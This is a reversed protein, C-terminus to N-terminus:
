AACSIGWTGVPGCSAGRVAMAVSRPSIRGHPDEEEAVDDAARAAIGQGLAQRGQAGIEAEVKLGTVFIKTM